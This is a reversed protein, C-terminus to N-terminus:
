GSLGVTSPVQWTDNKAFLRSLRIGQRESFSSVVTKLQEKRVRDREVGITTAVLQRRLTAEDSSCAFLLESLHEISRQGANSAEAASVYIPVHGVYPIREKKAENAVAFYAERPLRSYVKIFDVGDAHLTDVADRAQGKTAVAVSDPWVPKPGDVLKGAAYIRPGLATGNAVRARWGLTESLPLPSGMDRIGTIGNALLLNFMRQVQDTSWLAHTHM